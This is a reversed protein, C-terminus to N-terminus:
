LAGYRAIKDMVAPIYHAKDRIFIQPEDQEDNSIIIVIQNIPMGTLEEYMMGYLTTQEFYKHIYREQKVKLSTKHDIISPIGDWEAALDVRGATRLRKSYLCTEMYHINNIRALHPVATIFKTKMQDSVGPTKLISESPENTLHREMLGHWQEGRDCAAKSIRDAEAEGIKDRWRQIGAQEFSGLLTTVSPVVSGDPLFYHRKGELEVKVLDPLEPLGGVRQFM